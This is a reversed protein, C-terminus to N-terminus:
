VLDNLFAGRINSRTYMARRVFEQLQWAATAPVLTFLMPAVSWGLASAVSAAILAIMAILTAFGLLFLGTDTTYTVYESGSRRAGLVSHPQVVLASQMSNLFLLGTYTLAYLGFERPSVVRAVLVMTAF